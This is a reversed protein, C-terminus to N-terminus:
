VFCSDKSMWDLWKKDYCTSKNIKISASSCLWYKDESVSDLNLHFLANKKEISLVCSVHSVTLSTSKMIKIFIEDDIDTRWVDIFKKENAINMRTM